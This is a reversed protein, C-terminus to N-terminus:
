TMRGVIQGQLSKLLEWFKKKLPTMGQLESLLPLEVWYSNLSESFHSVSFKDIPTAQWKEFREPKSLGFSFGILKKDKQDEANKLFDSEKKLAIPYQVSKKIKNAFEVEDSSAQDPLIFFVSLNSSAQLSKESFDINEVWLSDGIEKQYNLFSRIAEM